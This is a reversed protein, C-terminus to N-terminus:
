LLYLYPVFHFQEEKRERSFRTVLVTKVYRNYWLDSRNDILLNIVTEKKHFIKCRQRKFLYKHIDQYVYGEQQKQFILRIQSNQVLQQASSAGGTYTIIHMILRIYRRRDSNRNRQTFSDKCIGRSYLQQLILKPFLLIVNTVNFTVFTM